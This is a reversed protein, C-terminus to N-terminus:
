ERRRASFKSEGMPSKMTGAISGDDKKVSARFGLPTEGHDSKGDVSFNLSNDVREGELSYEGEGHPNAFTGTLKKGEQKLTMRTEISGQAGEITVVWKGTLDSVSQPVASSTGTTGTTGASHGAKRGGGHLAKIWNTATDKPSGGMLHLALPTGAVALIGAAVLTSTKIHM